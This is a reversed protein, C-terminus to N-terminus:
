EVSPATIPDSVKRRLRYSVVSVLAAVVVFGVLLWVWWRSSPQYPGDDIIGLYHLNPALEEMAAVCNTRPSKFALLGYTTQWRHGHIDTSRIGIRLVVSKCEKDTTWPFRSLFNADVRQGVNVREIRTPNFAGFLMGAPRKRDHPYEVELSALVLRAAGQGANELHQFRIEASNNGVEQLTWGSPQLAPRVANQQIAVLLNTNYANISVAICSSLAAVSSLIAAVASILPARDVLSKYKM